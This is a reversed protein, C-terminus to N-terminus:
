IVVNTLYSSHLLVDVVCSHLDQMPTPKLLLSLTRLRRLKSTSWYTHLCPVAFRASSHCHEIEPGLLWERLLDLYDQLLDDTVRLKCTGHSVSTLGCSCVAPMSYGVCDEVECEYDDYCERPYTTLADPKAICHLNACRGSECLLSTMHVTCETKEGEGLSFFKVCKGEFCGAHVECDTNVYCGEGGVPILAKCVNESCREGQLCDITTKCRNGGPGSCVGDRCNRTLCDFDVKCNSGTFRLDPLNPACRGLNKAYDLSCYPAEPPCLSYVYDLGQRQLCFGSPLSGCRHIPCTALSFSFLLVM